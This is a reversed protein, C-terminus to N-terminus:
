SQEKRTILLVGSVVGVAEAITTVVGLLDVEEPEPILVPLGTTRSLVYALVNAALVAVAISVAWHERGPRRALVAVVALALASAAFAGGLLPGGEALHEPVLAAHVGASAACVLVVIDRLGNNVAVGPLAVITRSSLTM